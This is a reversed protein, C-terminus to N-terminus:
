RIGKIKKNSTHLIVVQEQTFVVQRGTSSLHGKGVIPFMNKAVIDAWLALLGGEEMLVPHIDGAIDIVILLQKDAAKIRIGALFVAVKDHIFGGGTAAM